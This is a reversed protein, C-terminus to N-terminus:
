RWAYRIGVTTLRARSEANDGGLLYGLGFSAAFAWRTPGVPVILEASAGLIAAWGSGFGPTGDSFCPVPVPECSRRSAIPKSIHHAGGMLRLGLSVIGPQDLFYPIVEFSASKWGLGHESAPAYAVVIRGASGEGASEVALAL